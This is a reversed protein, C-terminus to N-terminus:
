PMDSAQIQEMNERLMQTRLGQLKYFTVEAVHLELMLENVPELTHLCTGEAYAARWGPSRGERKEVAEVATRNCAQYEAIAAALAAEIEDTGAAAPVVAAAAVAAIAFCAIRRHKM